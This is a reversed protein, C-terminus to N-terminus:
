PMVLPKYVHAWTPLHKDRRQLCVSKGSDPFAYVYQCVDLARELRDAIDPPIGAAISEADAHIGSRRPEPAETIGQALVKTLLPHSM